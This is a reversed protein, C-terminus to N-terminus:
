EGDPDGFMQYMEFDRMTRMVPKKSHCLCDCDDDEVHKHECVDCGKSPMHDIEFRSPLM